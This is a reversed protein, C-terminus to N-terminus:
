GFMKQGAEECSHTEQTMTRRPDGGGEDAAEGPGDANRAAAQQLQTGEALHCSCDVFAGQQSGAATSM